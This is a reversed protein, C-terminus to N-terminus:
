CCCKAGEQVFAFKYSSASTLGTWKQLRGQWCNWFGLFRGSYNTSQNIPRGRIGSIECSCTGDEYNQIVSDAQRSGERSHSRAESCSRTEYGRWADETLSVSAAQKTAKAHSINIKVVQGDSTVTSAATEICWQSLSRGSGQGCLLFLVSGIEPHSSKTKQVSINFNWRLRLLRGRTSSSTRRGCANTEEQGDRNSTCPATTFMHVLFGTIALPIFSAM